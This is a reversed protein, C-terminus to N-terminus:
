LMAIVKASEDVQCERCAVQKTECYYRKGIERTLHRTALRLESETHFWEGYEPPGTFPVIKARFMRGHNHQKAEV